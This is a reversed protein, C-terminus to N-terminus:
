LHLRRVGCSFRIIRLILGNVFPSKRITKGPVQLLKGSLPCTLSRVLPSETTTSTEDTHSTTIYDSAREREKLRTLPSFRDSPTRSANSGNLRSVHEAFSRHGAAKAIDIITKDNSTLLSLDFHYVQHFEDFVRQEGAQAIHHVFYFRSYPPKENINVLSKKLIDTCKEWKKKQANDLLEDLTALREIRQCMAQNDRSKAIDLVTENKMTKSLLRFDPNETQLVLLRNLQDVNGHYAIQHIIAWKRTKPIETLWTPHDIIGQEITEFDKNGYASTCLEDLTKFVSQERRQETM